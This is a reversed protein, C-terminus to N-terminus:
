AILSERLRDCIGALFPNAEEVRIAVSILDSASMYDHEVLLKLAEFEWYARVSLEECNKRLRRDNSWVAYSREKAVLLLTRDAASLRRDHYAVVKEMMEREVPLIVVGMEAIQTESIIESVEDYVIRPLYVEALEYRVLDGVLHLAEAKLLDILVNADALLIGVGPTNGATASM